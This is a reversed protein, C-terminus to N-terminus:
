ILSYNTFSMDTISRTFFGLFIGLGLLYFLTERIIPWVKLQIVDKHTCLICLPPILGFAIMASGLVAPTSIDSTNEIVSVMNLILEPAASGFAVLTVAAMEEPVNYTKIFVEVCPVLHEDCILCVGYFSLGLLIIAFLSAFPLM